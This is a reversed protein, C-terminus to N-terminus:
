FLDAMATVARYLAVPAIATYVGSWAVLARLLFDGRREHTIDLYTLMHKFGRYLAVVGTLGVVFPSVFGFFVVTDPAVAHTVISTLGLALYIPLVGFLFVSTTAQTRLAQATVLRFSADLGSLQTYFYFSPLCISLAGLFAVVFCVPMWAAIPGSVMDGFLVMEDAGLVQATLGVTFGQAALGLVAITLLKRIIPVHNAENQLLVDLDRQGRLILDFASPLDSNVAVPATDAISTM